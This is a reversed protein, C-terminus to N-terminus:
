KLHWPLNNDLDLEGFDGNQLRERLRIKWVKGTGQLPLPEDLFVFRDPLWFKAIGKSLITDVFKKSVKEYDKPSTFTVVSGGGTSGSSIDCTSLSGGATKWFESKLRM